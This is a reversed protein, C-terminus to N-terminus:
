TTRISRGLTIPPGVGDDVALSSRRRYIYPGICPATLAEVNKVPGIDQDFDVPWAHCFPETKKLIKASM